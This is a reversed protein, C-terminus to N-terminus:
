LCKFLGVTLALATCRLFLLVDRTTQAQWNGWRGPSYHEPQTRKGSPSAPQVGDADARKGAQPSGAAPEAAQQANDVERAEAEAATYEM